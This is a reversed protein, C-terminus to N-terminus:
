ALAGPNMIGRPDLVARLARPVRRAQTRAGLLWGGAVEAAREARRRDHAARRELTFIVAGDADFRSIHARANQRAKGAEALVAHYVARLKSPTAM